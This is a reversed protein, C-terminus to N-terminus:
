QGNPGFSTRNKNGRNFQYNLNIQVSPIRYFDKSIQKAGNGKANDWFTSVMRLDIQTSPNIQYGAGFIYGIGYRTGFDTVNLKPQERTLEPSKSIQYATPNSSIVGKPNSIEEVNLGLYYAVNIGTMLYFKNFAYRLTIPMEFSHLTSFNFYHNTSDTTITYWYGKSNLSDYVSTTHQDIYSDDVV